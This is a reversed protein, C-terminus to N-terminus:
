ELIRKLFREFRGAIQESAQQIETAGVNICHIYMYGNDTLDVTMTGPTLTICNALATRAIDTKLNTRIKVIGPRIPMAPHLARYVVDLNAKIVYYVFVILFLILWFIRVPSLLVRHERPLLEHFLTSAILSAILGAVVIQMDIKGQVFPWSILVWVCFAVAFYVLRRM